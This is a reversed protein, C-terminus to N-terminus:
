SAPEASSALSERSARAVWGLSPLLPRSTDVHGAMTQPQSGAWVIAVSQVGEVSYALSNVLAYVRLLEARSGLGRNVSGPAPQLSVVAVGGSTLRVDALETGEEFVRRLGDTEPEQLLARVM